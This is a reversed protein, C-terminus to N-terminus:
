FAMNLAFYGGGVDVIYDFMRAYLTKSLADRVHQAQVCNLTVTVAESKGGWKSEM